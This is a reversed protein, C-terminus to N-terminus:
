IAIHSPQTVTLEYATGTANLTLKGYACWWVSHPSQGPIYGCASDLKSIMREEMRNVPNARDCIVHIRALLPAAPQGPNPIKDLSTLEYGSPIVAVDAHGHYIYSASWVPHNTRHFADSYNTARGYLELPIAKLMAFAATTRDAPTMAVIHPLRFIAALAEKRADFLTKLLSTTYQNSITAAAATGDVRKRIVVANAVAAPKTKSPGGARTPQRAPVLKEPLDVNFQHAQPKAVTIGYHGFGANGYPCEAAHQLSSNLLRFYPRKKFSAGYIAAPTLEVECYACVWWAFPGHGTRLYDDRLEHATWEDGQDNRALESM